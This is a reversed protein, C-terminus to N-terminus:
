GKKLESILKPIDGPDNQLDGDMSISMNGQAKEFGDKLSATQGRKTRSNIIFLKTDEKAIVEMIHQTSDTSGDNIFIIEYPKNLSDMTKKVLDYLPRVSEEENFFPAVLSYEILPKEM